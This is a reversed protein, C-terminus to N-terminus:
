YNLNEYDIHLAFFMVKIDREKRVKRKRDKSM